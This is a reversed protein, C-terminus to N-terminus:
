PVYTLAFSPPAAYSGSFTVASGAPFAGLCGNVESVTLQLGNPNPVGAGLTLTGTSNDYTGPVDGTLTASCDPGSVSLSADTWSVLNVDPDATPEVANVQSTGNAVVEIQLPGACASWLHDTIGAFRPDPPNVVAGALVHLPCSFQSGQETTMTTSGSAFYVQTGNPESVTWGAALAPQTTLSVSAALVSFLILLRRFTAKAMAEIGVLDHFPEGSPSSRTHTETLWTM